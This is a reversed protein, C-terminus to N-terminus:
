TYIARCLRDLLNEKAVKAPTRSSPPLHLALVTGEGRIPAIIEETDSMPWTRPSGIVDTLMQTSTRGSGSYARTTHRGLAILLFADDQELTREVQQDQARQYESRLMALPNGPDNLLLRVTCQEDVMSREIRSELTQFRPTPNSSFPTSRIVVPFRAEVRQSFRSSPLKQGLCLLPPPQYCRYAANEPRFLRSTCILTLYCCGHPPAGPAAIPVETVLDLRVDREFHIPKDSFTHVWLLGSGLGKSGEPIHQSRLLAEVFRATDQPEIIKLAIDTVAQPGEDPVRAECNSDNQRKRESNSRVGRDVTDDVCHQQPRQGIRVRIVQNAEPGRVRPCVPPAVPDGIRVELVPALLVPGEFVHRGVAEPQEINGAALIGLHHGADVDSVVQEGHKVGLWHQAARKQRFFVLGSPILDHDQAEAEPLTAETRIGPQDSPCYSDTVLAVGNDADHGRTKAKGAALGVHPYGM